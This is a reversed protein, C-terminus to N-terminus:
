VVGQPVVAPFTRDNGDQGPITQFLSTSYPARVPAQVTVPVGFLSFLPAPAPRASPTAPTTVHYHSVWAPAAPAAASASAVGAILITGAVASALLHNMLLHGEDFM